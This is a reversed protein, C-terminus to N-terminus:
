VTGVNTWAVVGFLLLLSDASNSVRNKNDIHSFQLMQALALHVWNNQTTLCDASDVATVTYLTSMELIIRIMTMHPYM